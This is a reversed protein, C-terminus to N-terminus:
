EGTEVEYEFLTSSNDAPMFYGRLGLTTTEIHFPNQLIPRAAGDWLAVPVQHVPALIKTDFLELGGLGFRGAPDNPMPFRKLGGLLALSTGPIWQADQFDVYHSPNPVSHPKDPNLVRVSNATGSETPWRYIKRSGWSVGILAHSDADHVIAGLHDDFTFLTEVTMERVDVAFVVTTSDPRYEAVSVWVRTGDYDIGGPHYRVGDTLDIRAILSGDTRMRFLHAKGIGRARDIVEVSSLFLDEGVRAFGQPHYTDFQVPTQSVLKWTTAATLSKFREAVNQSSATGCVLAVAAFVALPHALTTCRRFRLAGPQVIMDEIERLDCRKAIVFHVLDIEELRRIEEAVYIAQSGALRLLDVGVRVIVFNIVRNGPISPYCKAFFRDQKVASLDGDRRGTDRM